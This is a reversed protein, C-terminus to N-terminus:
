GLRGTLFRDLVEPYRKAAKETLAALETFLEEDVRNFNFCSKGQM